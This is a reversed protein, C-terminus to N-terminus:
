EELVYQQPIEMGLLSFINGITWIDYFESDQNYMREPHWQVAFVNNTTDEVAEILGNNNTAIAPIAHNGVGQHHFSNVRFTENTYMVKISDVLDNGNSSHRNFHIHQRLTGGYLVNITQLGRCVGIVPIKGFYKPLVQTDFYELAVDPRGTWWSPEQGYRLPDVDAGGPLLIADVKANDADPSMFAVNGFISTFRVLDENVGIVGGINSVPIGITPKTIL